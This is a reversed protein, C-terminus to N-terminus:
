TGPPFGGAPSAPRRGPGARSAAQRLFRGLGRVTAGVQYPFRPGPGFRGGLAVTAAIPNPWHHRLEALATRPRGVHDALPALRRYEQGWQRLVAPVLWRPLRAARAAIPTEATRAGLLTGALGVTCAVWDAVCPDPGLCREWDFDPPRSEVVLAVDCLWLARAAGHRLLHTCLVRLHDEPAPV